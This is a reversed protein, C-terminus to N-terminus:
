WPAAPGRLLLLLHRGQVRPRAPRHRQRWHQVQRRRALVFPFTLSLHFNFFTRSLSRFFLFSYPSQACLLKCTSYRDDVELTLKNVVLGKGVAEPNHCGHGKHQTQHCALPSILVEFLDFFLDGAANGTDMNVPIAGSKHPNVHYVTINTAHAPDISPPAALSLSLLHWM